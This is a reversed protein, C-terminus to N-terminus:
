REARRSLSELLKRCAWHTTAQRGELLGVSALILAGTCVSCVIEATEGATRV